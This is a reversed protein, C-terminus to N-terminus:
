EETNKKKKVKRVSCLRRGGSQRLKGLDVQVYREEEKILNTWLSVFILLVRYVALFFFM